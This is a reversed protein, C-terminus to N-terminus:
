SVTGGRRVTDLSAKLAILRDPQLKTVQLARDLLSGTADMGVADIVSHAGHGGTLHRVADGIDTAEPDLTIVGDRGAQD